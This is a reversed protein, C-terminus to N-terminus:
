TKDSLCFTMCYDDFVKVIDDLKIKIAINIQIRLCCFTQIFKMTDNLVDLIMNRFVSAELTKIRNASLNRIPHRVNGAKGNLVVQDKKHAPTFTGITFDQEILTFAYVGVAM